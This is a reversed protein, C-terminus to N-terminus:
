GAVHLGQFGQEVGVAHAGSRGDGRARYVGRQAFQVGHQGAQAAHAGEHVGEHGGVAAVLRRLGAHGGQGGQAQGESRQTRAQGRPQAAQVVRGQGVQQFAALDGARVLVAQAAGGFEGAVLHGGSSSRAARRCGALPPPQLLSCPLTELVRVPSYRLWRRGTM